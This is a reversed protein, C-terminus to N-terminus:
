DNRYDSLRININYIINKFVTLIIILVNVTHFLIISFLKSNGEVMRIINDQYGKRIDIIFVVWINITEIM